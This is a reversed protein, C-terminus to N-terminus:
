AGARGIYPDDGFWYVSRHVKNEAVLLAIVDAPHVPLPSPIRLEPFQSRYFQPHKQLLDIHVIAMDQRKKMAYQFYMLSFYSADDKVMLLGDTRVILSIIRALFEPFVHYRRDFQPHYFALLFITIGVLPVLGWVRRSTSHACLRQVTVACVAWLMMFPGWFYSKLDLSTGLGGSLFPLVAIFTFGVALVLGARRPFRFRTWRMGVLAAIGMVIVIWASQELLQPIVQTVQEGLQTVQDPGAFREGYDLGLIFQTWGKLGEVHPWQFADPRATLWPLSLYFVAM